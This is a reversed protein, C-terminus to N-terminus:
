LHPLPLFSMKHRNTSPEMSVTGHDHISGGNIIHCALKGEEYWERPVRGLRFCIQHGDEAGTLSDVPQAMDYCPHATNRTMARAQYAYKRPLVRCYSNM